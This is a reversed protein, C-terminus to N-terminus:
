TFIREVPAPQRRRSAKQLRANGNVTRLDALRKQYQQIQDVLMQREEGRATREAEIWYGRKAIEEHYPEAIIPVDGDNALDPPLSPGYLDIELGTTDPAPYFRLVGPSEIFWLVPTGPSDFLWNPYDRMLTFPSGKDWIWSQNYFVQMLWKWPQGPLNYLAQGTVSTMTQDLRLFADTEWIFERYAKNVLEGLSFPMETNSYGGLELLAAVRDQLDAFTM